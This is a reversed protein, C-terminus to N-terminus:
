QRSPWIFLVGVLSFYVRLGKKGFIEELGKSKWTAFLFDDPVILAVAISILGLDMAAIGVANGM